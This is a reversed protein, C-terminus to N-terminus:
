AHNNEYHFVANGNKGTKLTYTSGNTNLTISEGPKKGHIIITGPLVANLELQLPNRAFSAFRLVVPTTTEIWISGNRKVKLGTKASEISFMDDGLCYRKVGWTKQSLTGIRLVRHWGEVDILEQLALNALLAGWGYGTSSNWVDDGAGTFMNYNECFMNGKLWGNEFMKISKQAFEAATEDFGYRKLGEYVIFNTPPWIRGAWYDNESSAPYDLATVSMVFEGWFKKPDRMITNVMYEAQEQTAAGASLPYFSIISVDRIWTGNWARLYFMRSKKDYLRDRMRSKMAAAERQYKKADRIIGLEEAMMALAECDMTYLSNLAVCNGALTQAKKDFKLKQMVPFNDMGAEYLACIHENQQYPNYKKLHPYDYEPKVNSGWSLLGTKRPDRATFWWDHWRKLGDYTERLISIDKKLCYTKWVLYAGVPPQSRDFARVGFSAYYNPLFGEPTASALIAKFNALSLSADVTNALYGMFFQDWPFNYSGNWDAGWDRSIQTAVGTWRSDYITNWTVSRPVAMLAPALEGRGALEIKEYLKGARAIRRAISDVTQPSKRSSIRLAARKAPKNVLYSSDMSIFFMESSPLYLGPHMICWADTKLFDNKQQVAEEGAPLIAIVIRCHDKKNLPTICLDLNKTGGAAEVKYEGGTPISFTYSWYAGDPAHPGRVPMDTWRFDTYLADAEPDYVAIHIKFTFKGNELYAVTNFSRFDWTNWGQPALSSRSSM